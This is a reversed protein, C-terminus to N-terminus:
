SSLVESYDLQPVLFNPRSKNARTGKSESSKLGKCEQAETSTLQALQPVLSSPRPSLCLTVLMHM